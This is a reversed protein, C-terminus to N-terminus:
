LLRWFAHSSLFYLIPEKILVISNDPQCLRVSAAPLKQLRSKSVSLIGKCAWLYGNHMRERGHHPLPLLM